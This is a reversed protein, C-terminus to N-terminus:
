LDNEYLAGILKGKRWYAEWHDCRKCLDEMEGIGMHARRQLEYTEGQWIQQISCDEVSGLSEIRNWDHNCLAVEGNWYIVLDNFLKVCPKRLMSPAEEGDGDLSGFNGDKSHEKYVRIRDVKESWFHIFDRVGESTDETEVVSVQIQPVNSKKKERAACLYDINGLVRELNGNKRVHGYIAPNISDISFSVFDVELDVLGQAISSDMLTANTALQVSGVRPRAYAIMTLFEPHLLAEGRFFPVLVTGPHEAMEDIIRTFLSGTMFGKPGTMFRRPCMSCNLNCHNTLEVTVRRPFDPHTLAYPFDEPVHLSSQFKFATSNYMNNVM